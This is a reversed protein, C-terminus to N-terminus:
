RLFLDALDRIQREQPWLLRSRERYRAARLKDREKKLKSREM